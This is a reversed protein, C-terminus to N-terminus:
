EEHEIDHSDLLKQLEEVEDSLNNMSVTVVRFGDFNHFMRNQIREFEPKFKKYDDIQFVVSVFKDKM